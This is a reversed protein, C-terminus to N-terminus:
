VGRNPKWWRRILSFRFGVRGDPDRALYHDRELGTVLGLLKERDGFRMVGKVALHLEGVTLPGAAAAISDLIALVSKAEGGYYTPIRERYHMLEWPDNADTLQVSVMAEVSEVNAQSRRTKLGRVIHHIFFPVCDAEAAIRADTPTEDQVPIAEGQLLQRALETADAEELPLVEVKAMDNVPANSYNAAKLSRIVHHLGISGTLIMRLGAHTQRLSRLIDLVEMATREGERDRINALMFPVEDWLFLLRRDAKQSEGTLDEISRKLVDKWDAATTPPLRLMGGVEVGGLKAIWEKTRRAAKNQGTLFRDVERYVSMAFDMASHLGEVDQFVPVWGARPEAQMVKLVTTKGIRREATMVVSQQELIEWLNQILSNRGVVAKLDLQGGANAKVAWDYTM